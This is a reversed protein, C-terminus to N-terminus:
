ATTSYKLVPIIKGQMKCKFIIRWFNLRGLTRTIELIRVLVVRSNSMEGM